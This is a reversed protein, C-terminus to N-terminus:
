KEKDELNPIRLVQGPFISDPDKLMPKNAEFIVMYKNANGYHKKAIKSLWDGKEVTHYIAEPKPEIVEIHSEVESVGRTNGIVLMAKEAVAQSDTRGNLIVNGMNYTVGLNEIPLEMRTLLNYLANSAATNRAAIEAPSPGAKPKEPEVGRLKNGINQIFKKFLM